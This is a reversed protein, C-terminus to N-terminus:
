SLQKYAFSQLLALPNQLIAALGLLTLDLVTQPLNQKKCPSKERFNRDLLTKVSSESSGQEQADQACQLAELRAETTLPLRVRILDLLRSVKSDLTKSLSIPVLIRNTSIIWRIVSDGAKSFSYFLFKLNFCRM